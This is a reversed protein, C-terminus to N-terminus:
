LADRDVEKMTDNFVRARPGLDQGLRSNSTLASVLSNATSELGTLLPLYQRKPRRLVLISWGASCHKAKRRESVCSACISFLKQQVSFRRTTRAVKMRNHQDLAFSTLKELKVPASEDYEEDEPLGMQFPSTAFSKYAGIQLRKHHPKSLLMNKAHKKRMQKTKCASAIQPYFACILDWQTFVQIYSEGNNDTTQLYLQEGELSIKPGQKMTTSGDPNVKQNTFLSGDNNALHACWTYVSACEYAGLIEVSQLADAGGCVRNYGKASAELQTACKIYTSIPISPRRMVLGGLSANMQVNKLDYSFITHTSLKTNAAGKPRNHLGQFSLGIIPSGLCRQMDTQMQLAMNFVSVVGNETNIKLNHKLSTFATPPVPLTYVSFCARVRVGMLARTQTNISSDEEVPFNWENIPKTDRIVGKEQSDKEEGGEGETKKQKAELMDRRFPLDYRLLMKSNPRRLVMSSTVLKMGSTIPSRTFVFQPNYVKEDEEEEEEDGDIRGEEKKEEEKNEEKEEKENQKGKDAEKSEAEDAEPEPPPLPETAALTVLRHTKASLETPIDEPLKVIYAKKHPLKKQAEQAQQKIQDSQSAQFHTNLQLMVEPTFRSYIEYCDLSGNSYSVAVFRADKSIELSSVTGPPEGEIKRTPFQALLLASGYSVRMAYVKIHAASAAAIIFWDQDFLKMTPATNEGCLCVSSGNTSCAALNATMKKHLPLDRVLIQMARPALESFFSEDGHAISIHLIAQREDGTLEPCTDMMMEVAPGPSKPEDRNHFSYVYGENNSAFKQTGDRSSSICTTHGLERLKKFSSICNVEELVVKNPDRSISQAIAGDIIRLVIKDITQFPEPLQDHPFDPDAWVIKGIEDEPSLPPGKVESRSSAM